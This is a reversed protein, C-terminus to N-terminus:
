EFVSALMAGLSGHEPVLPVIGSNLLAVLSEAVLPRTGSAGLALTRARLFMMARVVEGDVPAGMGAAHSRILSVQLASRKAPEISTTALAGFGTSIGYTPSGEALREVVARADAMREVAAAALQVPEARRGVAVVDDITVGPGALEITM